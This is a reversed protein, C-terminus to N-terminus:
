NEEFSIEKGTLKRGTRGHEYVPYLQLLSFVNKDERSM